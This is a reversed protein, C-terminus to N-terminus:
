AAREWLHKAPGGRFNELWQDIEARRFRYMRGVRTHPITHANDYLWSKPTGLYDALTDLTMLPEIM